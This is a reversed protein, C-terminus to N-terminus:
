FDLFSVVYEIKLNLGRALVNTAILVDIEDNKM